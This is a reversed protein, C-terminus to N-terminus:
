LLPLQGPKVVGAGAEAAADTTATANTPRTTTAAEGPAVAAAPQKANPTRPGAAVAPCIDNYECWGCLTSPKPEYATAARIRDILALTESRLTALQEATRTSTRTQNRFVYHWVLRMPTDLDGYKGSIGIQYFALQRDRDIKAQNPVWRSTKYDHIEIAGDRARSIRDVYGQIGYRGSDDLGFVVHEELGLTEDADFPYHRRYYNSLSQEGNARYDDVSNETKVIRVKQADFHDDFLANFRNLVQPLTPAHGKGTAIYLRELVEHVRKGVFGEISEVDRPIKLVYRYEYKKACDEFSALRSHSFLETKPETTM